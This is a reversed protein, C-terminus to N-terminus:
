SVSNQNHNNKLAAAHRKKIRFYNVASIFVVIGTIPLFIISMFDFIAKSNDQGIESPIDTAFLYPWYQELTADKALIEKVGDPILQLRGKLVMTEEQPIKVGMSTFSVIREMDLFQRAKVNILLAKDGLPVPYMKEITLSTDKTDLSIVHPLLQNIRLEVFSGNTVESMGTENLNIPGQMQINNNRMGMFLMIAFLAAMVGIILFVGRWFSKLERKHVVDLM